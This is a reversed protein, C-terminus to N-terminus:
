SVVRLKADDRAAPQDAPEPDLRSSAELHAAAHAATRLLEGTLREIARALALRADRAALPDGAVHRAVLGLAAESSSVADLVSMARDLAAQLADVHHEIALADGPAAAFDFVVAAAAQELESRRDPHLAFAASRWLERNPFRIAGRADRQLLGVRGAEGLAAELRHPALGTLQRAVEPHVAGGVVVTADVLLRTDPDLKAHLRSLQSKSITPPHWTRQPEVTAEAPAAAKTRPAALDHEGTEPAASGFVPFCTRRVREVAGVFVYGRADPGPQRLEISHSPGIGAIARGAVALATDVRRSAEADVRAADPWVRAILEQESVLQNAREVVCLLARAAAPPLEIRAIGRCLTASPSSLTCPGFRYIAGPQGPRASASPWRTAASAARAKM